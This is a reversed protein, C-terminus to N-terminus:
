SIFIFPSFLCLTWFAYQIKSLGCEVEQTTVIQLWHSWFCERHRTDGQGCMRTQKLHLRLLM